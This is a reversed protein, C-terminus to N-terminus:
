IIFHQPIFSICSGIFFMFLVEVKRRLSPTKRSPKKNGAFSENTPICSGSFYVPSIRRKSRLDNGPRYTLIDLIFTETISKTLSLYPILYRFIYSTRYRIIQDIQLFSEGRGKNKSM